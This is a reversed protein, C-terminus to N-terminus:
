FKLNLSALFNCPAQPYFYNYNRVQGNEIDGYTAGNTIYKTSFINNVLLTVGINKLSFASFNYSLRVNNVFSSKIYRNLAYENGGATSIGVPNINSTNDLYQRSVYKSILAIEGGKLPRFSLESNAVVNPSFAIDTKKYVTEIDTNTDYNFLVQHFNKVKNSSFAANGAWSLANTLKGQGDLEIGERYSNKVNTSIAAGVDNLAGNLVLQKKYLM